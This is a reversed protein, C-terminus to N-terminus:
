KSKIIVEQVVYASTAALTSTNAFAPLLKTNQKGPYKSGAKALVMNAAAAMVFLNEIPIGLFV